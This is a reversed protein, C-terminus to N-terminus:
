IFIHIKKELPSFSEQFGFTKFVCVCVGKNKKGQGARERPKIQSCYLKLLRGQGVNEGGAINEPVMQGVGVAM